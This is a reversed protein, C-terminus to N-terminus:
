SDLVNKFRALVSYGHENFLGEAKSMISIPEVSRHLGSKSCQQYTIRKLFTAVHLGSSFRATTATPLIHNTGSYYDGIAVPSFNGLFISGASTIRSLLKKPSKTQIELHEPAFRNSFDIAEQTNNVLFIKGNKIIANKQIKSRESKNNTVIRNIEEKTKEALSKDTCLLIAVADEDHEAQALLDHAVFHPNATEDAIILVESPGAFGDIGCINHHALFQKAASVYINGPGYIFDVPKINQKAIGLAMTFIAQIGGAQLLHHAGALYAVAQVVLPVQKEDKDPPSIVTINKVGALKAPICGMLVTSPYLAKGGPVYLAVSSM